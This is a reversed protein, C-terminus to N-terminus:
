IKLLQKWKPEKKKKQLETVGCAFCDGCLTDEKTTVAKVVTYVTYAIAALIILLVIIDQIM